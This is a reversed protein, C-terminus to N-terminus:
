NTAMSVTRVLNGTILEMYRPQNLTLTVNGNVYATYDVEITITNGTQPQGIVRVDNIKVSLSEVPSDAFVAPASIGTLMISGILILLYKTKM